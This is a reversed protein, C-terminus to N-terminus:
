IWCCERQLQEVTVTNGHEDYVETISAKVAVFGNQHITDKADVLYMVDEVIRVIQSKWLVSKNETSILKHTFYKGASSLNCGTSLFAYSRM